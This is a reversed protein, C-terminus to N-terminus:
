LMTKIYKQPACALDLQIRVAAIRGPCLLHPLFCLVFIILIPDEGLHYVQETGSSAKDSPSLGFFFLFYFIEFHFTFRPLWETDLFIIINIDIYM